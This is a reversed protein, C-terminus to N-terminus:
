TSSLGGTSDQSNKFHLFGISRVRLRGLNKGDPRTKSDFDIIRVTAQVRTDGTALGSSLKTYAISHCWRYPEGPELLGQITARALGGDLKGQNTHLLSLKIEYTVFGPVKTNGVVNFLGRDIELMVQFNKYMPIGSGFERYDVDRQEKGAQTFDLSPMSRRVETNNHVLARNEDSWRRTRLGSLSAFKFTVKEGNVTVSEPGPREFYESTKDSEDTIEVNSSLLQSGTLVEGYILPVTNGVGVTNAPGQFAYSQEGSTARSVGQPGSANTNEGPRLRGAGSLSPIQPQPSLLQSVGGLILSAGIAGIATAAAGGILGMAAGGAAVGGMGGLGAGLGLFGGAAPGIVIALAVLGIGVLIKGTGGGGGSGTIVPTLILDNSGLPLKLDAYDLDTGAQILRYGIGHEHAEALEKMLEPKNICLLKIADAPTRLNCYEHKVGYREGLNGLLRVTQQM